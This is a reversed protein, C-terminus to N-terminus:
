RHVGGELKGGVRVLRVDVTHPSHLNDRWGLTCSSATNEFNGALCNQRCASCNLKRAAKKKKGGENKKKDFFSLCFLTVTVYCMHATSLIKACPRWESYRNAYVVERKQSSTERRISRVLITRNVYKGPANQIQNPM